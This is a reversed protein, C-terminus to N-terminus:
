RVFQGMSEQHAFGLGTGTIVGTEGPRPLGIPELTRNQSEHKMNIIAILYAVILQFIIVKTRWPENVIYQGGWHAFCVSECKRGCGLLSRWHLTLSKKYQIKLVIHPVSDCAGM